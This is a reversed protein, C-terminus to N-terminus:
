ESEHPKAKNLLYCLNGFISRLLNVITARKQKGNLQVIANGDSETGNSVCVCVIHTGAIHTLLKRFASSHGSCKQISSPAKGLLVSSIARRQSNLM